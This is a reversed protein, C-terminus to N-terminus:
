SVVSTRKSTAPFSSQPFNPLNMQKSYGNRTAGKAQHHFEEEWAGKLVRSFFRRCRRGRIACYSGQKTLTFTMGGAAPLVRSFIVRCVMGGVFVPYIVQRPLLFGYLFM